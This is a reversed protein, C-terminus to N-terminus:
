KLGCNWQEARSRVSGRCQSPQRKLRLPSARACESVRESVPHLRSTLSFALRSSRSSLCLSSLLFSYHSCCEGCTRVGMWGGVCVCVCVCAPLCYNLQARLLTVGQQTKHLRSQTLASFLSPVTNKPQLPRSICTSGSVFDQLPFHKTPEKM